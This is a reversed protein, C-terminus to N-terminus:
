VVRDPVLGELTSALSAGSKQFPTYRDLGTPTVSLPPRDNREKILIGISKEVRVPATCIVPAVSLSRYKLTLVVSFWDAFVPDRVTFM